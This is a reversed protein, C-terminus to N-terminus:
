VPGPRDVARPEARAARAGRWLVGACGAAVVVPLTTLLIIDQGSLALGLLIGAVGPGVISGARGLAAAWGVGTTRTGEPYLAVALTLQGIQSATVGAGAGGLALLLLSDSLPVRAALVLCIAGFVPMLVLAPAIGIRAAVPILVIGGLVGGLSVFALGLPAQAPSFGYTTLLTPVWSTLTYAAIFVLFSFAWLLSTSARLGPDFLRGVKAEYRDRDGSDPRQVEAPLGRAMVGALLLPLLGAVWFVGATGVLDILRGGFFGGLTAGSALGLTVAVSVVERRRAASFATAFSVAVPLVVGLGLGTLLRAIALLGVSQVPLVTAVLLTSVSFLVVGAVLLTRRGWRAGLAGCALYGVVVGLNTVVLPVTFAAPAVGWEVALTPVVFALTATDFGDLLVALFSLALVGWHIGARSRHPVPADASL